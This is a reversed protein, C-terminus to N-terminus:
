WEKQLLKVFSLQSTYIMKVLKSKWHNSVAYWDSCFSAIHTGSNVFLLPCDSGKTNM